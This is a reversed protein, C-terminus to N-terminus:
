RQPLNDRIDERREELGTLIRMVKAKFERDPTNSIDTKSLDRATAKDKEKM